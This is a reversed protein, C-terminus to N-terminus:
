WSARLAAYASSNDEFQGYFTTEDAGGFLNLGGSVRWRDTLKWSANPRLFFDEDTPSVFAFFSLTLDDRLLQRTIRLTLVHRWEERPEFEPPLTRAYADYDQLWEVYWQAGVTLKPLVEREHGLLFRWEGNNVLPDEGSRDDLSDYYGTEFWSIGGLSAGRLSAGYVRLPPFIARGDASFGGPSKWHGDYFYAAAEVSGFRRYLRASLDAGGPIDPDELRTAGGPLFFSVESGDVFRDPTFPAGVVVDLNALDNFYTARVGDLPAKLYEEDRGLLFSVWDKPFLDNIFVLDGTGWTAIMRGAKLDLSDGPRALVWAERLDFWGTGRRLDVSEDTPKGGILDFAVRGRLGGFGRAYETRLRLEALTTRDYGPDDRLRAGARGELFGSLGAPLRWGDPPDREPPATEEGDTGAAAGRGPDGLGSPLAPEAGSSEGGL